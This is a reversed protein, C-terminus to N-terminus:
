RKPRIEVVNERQTANYGSGLLINEIDNVLYRSSEALDAQYVAPQLVCDLGEDTEFIEWIPLERTQGRLNNYHTFLVQLQRNVAEVNARIRDVREASLGTTSMTEAKDPYFWSINERQSNLFAWGYDKKGDLTEVYYFSQKQPHSFWRRLRTNEALYYHRSAPTKEFTAVKVLFLRNPVKVAVTDGIFLRESFYEQEGAREGNILGAEDKLLYYRQHEIELHMCATFNDSLFGDSELVRLPQYPLFRRLDREEIQQEYKNYIRLVGPQEIVLYDSIEGPSQGYLMSFMLM